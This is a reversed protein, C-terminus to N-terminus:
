AATALESHHRPLGSELGKFFLLRGRIEADTPPPSGVGIAARRKALDRELYVIENFASAAPSAQEDFTRLRTAAWEDVAVDGSRGRVVDALPDVLSYLDFLGSTLGLGGTPNTAHAADGIFLVRGERMSRVARQHMRYPTYAVVEHDLGGFGIAAFRDALREGVTEEPLSASEAWTWRWLGTDDIRAIICGHDPDLLMSADLYGGHRHFDFRINTAVFRHDWTMGDFPLQLARRISSRAGDAAVLWSATFTVQEGESAALAQVTVNDDAVTVDTVDHGFLTSHNPLARLHSLAVDVVEHQGLHINYPYPTVESLVGHHTRLEEGTELVRQMFDPNRFGRADIDDLVGLRELGELVAWHYVMARPSPVIGPERELVLVDLGRQALGLAALAGSPGAGVVIVDHTSVLV